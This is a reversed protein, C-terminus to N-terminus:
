DSQFSSFIIIIKRLGILQANNSNEFLKLYNNFNNVITLRNCIDSKIININSSCFYWPEKNDPMFIRNEQRLYKYLSTTGSKASGVILFDPLLLTGMKNKKVLM